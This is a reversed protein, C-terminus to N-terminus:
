SRPALAGSVTIEITEAVKSVALKPVKVEYDALSVKFKAELNVKGDKITVTGPINVDRTIGHITLKGVAKVSHSGNSGYNIKDGEIKGVFKANPFKESELYSENFHDKMTANEFKFSKILVSFKLDSSAADLGISVDNNFAEINEVPTTSFFSVRGTRTMFVQAQASSLTLVLSLAVLLINKM